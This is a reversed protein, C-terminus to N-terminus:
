HMSEDTNYPLKKLEIQRPEGHGIVLEYSSVSEDTLVVLLDLMQGNRAVNVLNGISQEGGTVYCPTGPAPLPDTAATTIRYMHRKLKGLYKMRAVVEQGTYCGKKFSIAELAQLNLMQPIFM